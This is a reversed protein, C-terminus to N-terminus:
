TQKKELRVLDVKLDILSREKRGFPPPPPSSSLVRKQTKPLRRIWWTTLDDLKPFPLAYVRFWNRKGKNKPGSAAPKWWTGNVVFSHKDSIPRANVSVKQRSVSLFFNAFWNRALWSKLWFNSFPCVCVWFWVRSFLKFQLYFVIQMRFKDPSPSLPQWDIQQFHNLDSTASILFCNKIFYM